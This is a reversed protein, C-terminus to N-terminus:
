LIIQYILLDGPAASKTVVKFHELGTIRKGLGM